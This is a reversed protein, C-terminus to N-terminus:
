DLYCVYDGTAFFLGTNRVNGSFLPEKEIQILKINPNPLYKALETATSYCGDAVVILEVNPYSQNIFSNIARHFKAIRDTASYDYEGLFSATVISIKVSM